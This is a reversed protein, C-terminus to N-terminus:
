SKDNEKKEEEKCAEVLEKEFAQIFVKQVVYSSWLIGDGNYVYKELLKQKKSKFLDKIVMKTGKKSVKKTENSNLLTLKFSFLSVEGTDELVVRCVDGANKPGRTVVGGLGEYSDSKSNIIVRDGVKFKYAM